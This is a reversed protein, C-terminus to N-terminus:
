GDHLDEQCSLDDALTGIEQGDTADPGGIKIADNQGALTV